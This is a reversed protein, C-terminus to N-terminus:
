PWAHSAYPELYGAGAQQLHGDWLAWDIEDSVDNLDDLMSLSSLFEDRVETIGQIPPHSSQFFDTRSAPPREELNELIRSNRHKDSSRVNCDSSTHPETDGLKRLESVSNDNQSGNVRIVSCDQQVKDLVFKVLDVTKGIEKVESGWEKWVLYSEELVGQLHELSLTSEALEAPREAVTKLRALSRVGLCIIMVALLFDFRAMSTVKWKHGWLIGAPQSERYLFSQHRVIKSAAELCVKWSVLDSHKMFRRHLVCRAKQFLLDLMLRRIIVMPSDTVTYNHQHKLNTPIAEYTQSLLGDLEVVKSYSLMTTAMVHEQIEGLVSALRSRALVYAANASGPEPRSPPLVTITPYLDEDFLNRPEKTDTTSPHILRPLGVDLSLTIDQQVILNWVRRRMEGAFISINTYHSPDRHYGVRMATRITTTLVLNLGFSTSDSRLLECYLYLMLAEVTHASPRAYNAVILSKASQRRFHSATDHGQSMPGNPYESFESGLSMLSFLVSIWNASVADQHDWFHEYQAQFTPAHLTFGVGPISQFAKSILRDVQLKNPISALLEPFTLGTYSGSFLDPLNNSLTLHNGDYSKPTSGHSLQDAALKDALVAWHEGGIYNTEDPNVDIRGCSGEAVNDWTSSPAQPRQDIHESETTTLAKSRQSLHVGSSRAQPSNPTATPRLPAYICTSEANRSHCRECPKYRDCRVKRARCPNCSLQQKERRRRQRKLVESRTLEQENAM